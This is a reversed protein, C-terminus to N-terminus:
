DQEFTTKTSIRSRVLNFNDESLRHIFLKKTVLFPLKKRSEVGFAEFNWVKGGQTMKSNSKLKKENKNISRYEDFNNKFEHDSTRYQTYTREFEFITIIVSCDERKTEIFLM